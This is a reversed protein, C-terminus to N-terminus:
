SVLEWLNDKNIVKVTTDPYLNQFQTPTKYKKNSSYKFEFAILKGGSEELYDVEKQTYSRWFFNLPYKGGYEMYKVREMVCFNGWLAGVDNRNELNTYNEIVANRVGNDWFYIKKKKTLEVRPNTSYASLIKIIFSKELIQLYRRVTAQDIGLNTALEHFSVESGLQLSILKLLRFLVDQDLSGQFNLLDKYLYSNVLERLEREKHTLETNIIAPYMGYILYQDLNQSIDWRSIQEELEGLSIPFLRLTYKRGTLPESVKNALDFSSSGSAIVQLKPLHDAFLKLTSGINDIKQAEDIVLLELNAFTSKLYSITPKHLSQATQFEEGDLYLSKFRSLLGQLLTSKGVQRPGYVIIVKGKFLLPELNESLKRVIM